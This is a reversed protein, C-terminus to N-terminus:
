PPLKQRLPHVGHKCTQTSTTHVCPAPPLPTAATVTRLAQRKVCCPGARTVADHTVASATHLPALLQQLPARLVAAGHRVEGRKRGSRGACLIAGADPVALEHAKRAVLAGVLRQEAVRRVLGERVEADAAEAPLRRPAAGRKVHQREHQLHAARRVCSRRPEPTRQSADVTAYVCGSPGPWAIDQGHKRVLATNNCQARTRRALLRLM